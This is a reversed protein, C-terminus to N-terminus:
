YILIWWWKSLLSASVLGAIDAIISAALAYRIRVIGISGFYVALVYFTTETSGMMTSAVFAEYSDPSNNVLEGMIAFAGSGSLPRVIAMPLVDAPLGILGTLPNLIDAILGMAGSARFMGIAVLITVLFPIIRVAVEFGQKAGESVADYVRVGKGVGYSVILLILGPMLWFAALEGTIFEGLVGRGVASVIRWILLGLFMAPLLYALAKQRVGTTGCLHKYSVDVPEVKEKELPDPCATDLPDSAFKQQVQGRYAKDKRGFFTAAVIGVITSCATALFTPIWISVPDSAGAAARVGIVGLPLIAVSSTNIALFLCMANTATGKFPNLKDLEVMAKVGFPTAANGLGLMNASINLIMAGMAPHEEPVDPFLKVMLPKLLRALTFMLGGAELIRVMGLWFAMIGILGIALNVAAKASDFSAASVEKMSGEAAAWLVAGCVFIVFVLNIASAKGAKQKSKSM